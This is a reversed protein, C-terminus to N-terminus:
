LFTFFFKLENNKKSKDRLCQNKQENSKVRVFNFGTANYSEFIKPFEIFSKSMLVSGIIKLWCLVHLCM